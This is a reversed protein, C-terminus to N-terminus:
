KKKRDAFRFVLAGTIWTAAGVGTLVWGTVQQTNSKPMGPDANVDGTTLAIGTIQVAGGLVVLSWGAYWPAPKGWLLKQPPEDARAPAACWLALALAAWRM